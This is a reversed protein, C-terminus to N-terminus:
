CGCGSMGGLTFHISKKLFCNLNLFACKYTHPVSSENGFNLPYNRMWFGSQLLQNPIIQRKCRIFDYKWPQGHKSVSNKFGNKLVHRNQNKKQFFMKKGLPINPINLKAMFLLTLIPCFGLFWFRTTTKKNKTKSMGACKVQHDEYKFLSAQQKTSCM